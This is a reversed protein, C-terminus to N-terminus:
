GPNSGQSLTGAAAASEEAGPADVRRPVLLMLVECARTRGLPDPHMDAAPLVVLRGPEGVAVFDHRFPPVTAVPALRVQCSVRLGGITLLAPEMGTDLLPRLLEGLQLNFHRAVTAAEVGTWATEGSLKRRAHRTSYNMLEAVLEIQQREHLGRQELFRRVCEAIADQGDGPMVDRKKM